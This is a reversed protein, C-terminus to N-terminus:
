GAQSGSPMTLWGELQQVDGESLRSHTPLTALRAALDRAGAFDGGRNVVREGFGPLDCLAKPYGPAVGLRAGSRRAAPNDGGRIVPLRLFGPEGGAPTAIPRVRGGARAAALLREGNSRRVAIEEGLLRYAVSAAAGSAATPGRPASPAHYITEGLRLFPLSAPLGYLRPHGLLAQAALRAVDGAGAGGEGLRGRAWAVIAEGREDHALLAGGSGGTWGKGRGLSLVSLSGFTGLERGLLRGGIGQAADEILIAGASDALRQCTPVDVPHGYLHAVIVSSVPRGLARELSETRPGLTAPDLDYLVVPVEAGDAATAVDYCCYAPLATCSGPKSRAAGAIALRLASTGSDTLLVDRADFRDSIFQTVQERSQAARRPSLLALFAVGIAEASIPSHVPPLHRFM